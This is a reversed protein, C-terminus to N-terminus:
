ASQFSRRPSPIPAGTAIEACLGRAISGRPMQGTYIREAIGLKVPTDRTAGATDAAAVAYGDMASRAFPPVDISSTVGSAVVRGAADALTVRETRGM